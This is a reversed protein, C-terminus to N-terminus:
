ESEAAFRLDIAVSWSFDAHHSYKSHSSCYTQLFSQWVVPWVPKCTKRTQLSYKWVDCFRKDIIRISQVPWIKRSLASWLYKFLAQDVAQWFYNMIKQRIQNSPHVFSLYFSHQERSSLKVIWQRWGRFCKCLIRKYTLRHRLVSISRKVIVKNTSVKCITQYM